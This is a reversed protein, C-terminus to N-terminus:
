SRILSVTDKRGDDHLEVEVRDEFRTEVTRGIFDPKIPLERHGRDVMVALQITKPRGFDNLADLAARITRGSFIVDDVLIVTKTNLNFPIDTPHMNPSIRQDLDDRHMGVDITGFPIDQGYIGRLLRALRRALPVGGQHIGIVVLEQGKPNREAIEHAIRTLARDIANADLIEIASGM